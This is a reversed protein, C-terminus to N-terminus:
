RKNSRKACTASTLFTIAALITLVTGKKVKASEGKLAFAGRRSVGDNYLSFAGKFVSAPGNERL